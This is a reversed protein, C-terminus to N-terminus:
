REMHLLTEALLVLCLNFTCVEFITELKLGGVIDHMNTLSNRPWRSPIHYTLKAWIKLSKKALKLMKAQLSM